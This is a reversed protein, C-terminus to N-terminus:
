RFSVNQWCGGGRLTLFMQPLVSSNHKYNGKTGVCKEGRGPGRHHSVNWTSSNAAWYQSHSPCCVPICQLSFFVGLRWRCLVVLLMFFSFLVCHSLDLIKCITINLSEARKICFCCFDGAILFCSFTWFAAPSCSRCTVKWFCLSGCTSLKLDSTLGLQQM